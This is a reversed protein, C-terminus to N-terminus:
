KAHQLELRKIRYDHKKLQRNIISDERKLSDTKQKVITETQVMDDRTWTSIIFWLLVGMFVTVIIAYVADKNKEM